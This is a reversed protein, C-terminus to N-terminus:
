RKKVRKMIEQTMERQLQEANTFLELAPRPNDNVPSYPLNLRRVREIREQPAPHSDYKGTTCTMAKEISVHIDHQVPIPLEDQPPLRYLNVNPRLETPHYLNYNAEIPFTIIHKIYSTLGDIFNDAGYAMAAYRDALVEQLRSAGFTVRLFLRQYGVLFLWVPNYVAAARTQVLHFAMQNLSAWVQHSLNGGATDRNSFHGYEHALIGALQGQTLGGIGGLGLMLNRSAKNRMKRMISGSENVGIMVDPTLQISEVPAVGLRHAVDELLAWLGPAERRELKRGPLVTKRRSFVTRLIAFLSGFVVVILIGIVYYPIFGIKSFGYLVGAVALLMVVIVVPISIYYYLSLVSIVFRYISRLRKERPSIQSAVGAQPDDLAKLTSKSLLSGTFSLLVLGIFWLVIVAIIGGIIKYITVMRNIGKDLLYQVAEEPMGLQKSVMVEREAKLWNGHTSALIAALYHAIPNDPALLLLKEDAQQMVNLDEVYWAAILWTYITYEDNPLLRAAESSLDFAEHNADATQKNILAMALASKNYGDPELAVAERMTEIATDINGQQLDIYGLRRYAPAFGPALSLVREFLQRSQEYNGAEYSSLGQQYVPVATPNVAALKTELTAQYALDRTATPRPTVAGNQAGSCAALNTLLLPLILLVIWKKYSRGM